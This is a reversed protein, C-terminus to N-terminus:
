RGKRYRCVNCDGMRFEEGNKYLKTGFQSLSDPFVDYWGDRILYITDREMVKYAMSRNRVSSFEEPTAVIQEPNTVSIIYSNWYNGIVGIRGLSEFEHANEASPKLTKPWIYKLNYLSGVGALLVAFFLVVRITKKYVSMELHEFALLFAMWFVIYNSIFYRRPVGNMFAWKSVLIAFFILALDFIFFLFWKKQVIGFGIKGRLAILALSVWIVLHLYVFTAFLFVSVIIISFGSEFHPGFALIL